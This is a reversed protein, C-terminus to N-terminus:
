ETEDARLTAKLLGRIGGLAIESQNGRRARVREVTDRLRSLQINLSDVMDGNSEAFLVFEAIYRAAVRFAVDEDAKSHKGLSPFIEEIKRRIVVELFKSLGSNLILLDTLERKRKAKSKAKELKIEIARVLENLAAREQDNLEPNGIMELLWLRINVGRSSAAEIFNAIAAKLPPLVPKGSPGEEPMEYKDLDLTISLPM